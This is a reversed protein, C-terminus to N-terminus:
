ASRRIRRGARRRGRVARDVMQEMLKESHLLEDLKKLEGETLPEDLRHM